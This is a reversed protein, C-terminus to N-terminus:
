AKPPLLDQIPSGQDRLKLDDWITDSAAQDRLTPDIAYAQELYRRTAAYNQLRATNCALDYYALAFDPKIALAKFYYKEANAYDKLFVGYIAGAYLPLSPDTQHQAMGLELTELAQGYLAASACEQAVRLYADADFATAPTQQEIAQVRQALSLAAQQREPTAGTTAATKAAPALMSPSVKAPPLLGIDATTSSTQVALRDAENLAAGLKLRTALYALIFGVVASYIVLVAAFANANGGGLGPALYTGLHSLATPLRGLQTLGAGLLLKTLWDSVDELNTNAGYGSPGATGTVGAAADVSGAATPTPNATPSTNRLARPVGFLLGLLAGVAGSALAITVASLAIFWRNTSHAVGYLFGVAAGLVLLAVLEGIVHGSFRPEGSSAKASTQRSSRGFLRQFFKPRKAAEPGPKSTDAM